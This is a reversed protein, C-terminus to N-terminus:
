VKQDAIEVGALSADVTVLGGDRARVLEQPQAIEPVAVQPPLVVRVVDFVCPEAKTATTDREVAEPDIMRKGRRRERLPRRPAPIGMFFSRLPQGIVRDHEDLERCPPTGLMRGHRGCLTLSKWSAYAPFRM